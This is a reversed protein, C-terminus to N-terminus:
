NRPIGVHDVIRDEVREVGECSCALHFHFHVSPWPLSRAHGSYKSGSESIKM